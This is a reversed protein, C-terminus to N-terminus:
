GQACAAHSPTSGNGLEAPGLKEPSKFYSLAGEQWDPWNFPAIFGEDHLAKLFQSAENSLECWPFVGPKTHWRSHKETAHSFIPLFRLLSEVQQM